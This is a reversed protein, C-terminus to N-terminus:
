REKLLDIYNRVLFTVFPRSLASELLGKDRIGDSGGIKITIRKHFEILQNLTICKM